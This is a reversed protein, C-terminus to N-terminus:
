SSVIFLKRDANLLIKYSVSFYYQIFLHMSIIVILSFVYYYDFQNWLLRCGIFSLLLVYVIFFAALKRFFSRSAVIISSVSKWDNEALPKYLASMIVAGIGGEIITIYSLLQTISSVLGNVDSGFHTLVIRPVVLGNIITVIQLLVSSYINKWTLSKKM